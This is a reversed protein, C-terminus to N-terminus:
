NPEDTVGANVSRGPDDGESEPRRRTGKRRGVATEGDEERPRSMTTSPLLISQERCCFCKMGLISELIEYDEAVYEAACGLLRGELRFSFLM